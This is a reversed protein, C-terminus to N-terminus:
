FTRGVIAKVVAHAETGPTLGAGAGVNVEWGPGEETTETSLNAVAFALHTQEHAPLLARLRGLGAYWELGVGVGPVIEWGASAAPTFEVDRLSDLPAGLIPNVFLSWPGRTIGVIPRVELGWPAQEAALPVRSVEFNLGLAVPLEWRKPAVFLARLKAGAWATEDPSTVLQAYAGLELFDTIGVAPELTLRAAHRAPVEGAYTPLRTGAVTYNAHLQVSPQGPADISADYVQIEFKDQAAAVRPGGCVLLLCALARSPLCRAHRRPSRM